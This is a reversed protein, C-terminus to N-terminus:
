PHEMRSSHLPAIEDRLGRRLIRTRGRSCRVLQAFCQKRTRKRIGNPRAAPFFRRGYKLVLKQADSNGHSFEIERRLKELLPDNFKAGAFMM